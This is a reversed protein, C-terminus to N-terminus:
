VNTLIELSPGILEAARAALGAGVGRAAGVGGVALVQLDALMEPPGAAIVLAGHPVEGTDLARRLARQVYGAFRHARPLVEAHHELESRSLCLVVAIGRDVWEQVEEHIPLDLPSRLGLFLHTAAAVGKAIRQALVPRAVALASGVVAIVVHRGDMQAFPFGTGLPGEVELTSGLPRSFLADAADGANKVLLEWPSAGVASALVFYGNGAETKVEVYQGPTTYARSMHEDVELAVLLLDGGADRRSSLVASPM